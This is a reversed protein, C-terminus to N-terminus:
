EQPQGEAHLPPHKYAFYLPVEGGLTPGINMFESIKVWQNYEDGNVEPLPLHLQTFLDFRFLDYASRIMSGYEGVSFLAARYFVAAIGLSLVAVLVYVFVWKQTSEETVAPFFGVWHTKATLWALLSQYVAAGACLLAFCVSLISCNVLFSLQNHSGEIKADYKDPIVHILRPWMPVADIGYRSRPYEEAAKLINGFPTSLVDEVRSPYQSDFLTLLGYRRDKLKEIQSNLAEQHQNELHEIWNNINRIKQQLKKSSRQQNKRFYPVRHLLVYGEFLKLFFTNLSTLTFGLIITFLLAFLGSPVLPNLGEGYRAQIAPPLLHIFFFVASTVFALSPIICAVLFNSGMKEM